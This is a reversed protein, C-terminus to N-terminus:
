ASNSEALDTLMLRLERRWHSPKTGLRETLDSTDLVSFRPRTAPTPYAETSIPSIPKEETLLGIDLGIEQTAVAVDYWSAVGADSWHFTGRIEPDFAVKWIARAFGRAWTPSGIQDSVVGLAPREDLLGLMTKVFNTRFRSYIWSSRIIIWSDLLSRIEEEGDLKSRGYVSLPGPSDGPRYPRSQRGDFVFDTSLHILRAGVTEAARALYRPGTTNVAFASEHDAEARDVATYAAANIVVTPRTDQVTEIVASENRIDLEDRSTAALDVGDPCSLCLESGVQGRAGTVLVRV